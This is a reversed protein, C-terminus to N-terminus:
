GKTHRITNISFIKKKQWYHTHFSVILFRIHYIESLLSYLSKKHFVLPFQSTRKNKM